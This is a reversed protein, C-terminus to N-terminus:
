NLRLARAPRVKPGPPVMPARPEQSDLPVPMAKTAKPERSDPLVPIARTVRPVRRATPGPRVSMAKTARPVQSALPGPMAPTVRTEKRAQSATLVSQVNRYRRKPDVALCRDIITALVRDVGPLHRHLTPAPSSRLTERYCKLREDISSGSSVSAAAEDTLYPLKGALMRAEEVADTFDPDKTGMVVLTPVTSKDLIAATDAKSLSLM